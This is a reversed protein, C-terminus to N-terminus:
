GLGAALGGAAAEAHELVGQWGTTDICLQQSIALYKAFDVLTSTVIKERVEAVSVAGPEDFDRVCRDLRDLYEQTLCHLNKVFAADYELPM